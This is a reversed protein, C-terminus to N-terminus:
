YFDKRSIGFMRSINAIIIRNSSVGQISVSGSYAIRDRVRAGKIRQIINRAITSLEMATVTGQGGSGRAGDRRLRREKM